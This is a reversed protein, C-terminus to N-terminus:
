YLPIDWFVAFEEYNLCSDGDADYKRMLSEVQDESFGKPVMASKLERLDVLGDGNSDFERFGAEIQVKLEEVRHQFALFELMTLRYDRNKDYQDVLAETKNEDFGLVRKLVPIADDATIYGRGKKDYLKMKEKVPELQKQKKTRKVMAVVFEEYTIGGSDDTDTKGFIEM